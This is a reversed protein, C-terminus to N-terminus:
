ENNSGNDSDGKLEEKPEEKAEEQKIDAGISKLYEERAIESELKPIFTRKLLANHFAM